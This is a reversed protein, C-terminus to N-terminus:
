GAAATSRSATRSPPLTKTRDVFSETASLPEAHVKGLEDGRQRDFSEHIFIIAAARQVHRRYLAARASREEGPRPQVREQGHLRMPGFRVDTEHEIVNRDFGAMVHVVPQRREAVAPHGVDGLDLSQESHAGAQDGVRDFLDVGLDSDHRVHESVAKRTEGAGVEIAGEVADPGESRMAIRVFHERNMARALLDPPDVLIAGLRRELRDAAVGGHLRLDVGGLPAHQALEPEPGAVQEVYRAAIIM